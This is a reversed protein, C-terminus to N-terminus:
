LHGLLSPDQMCEAAVFELCECVGFYAVFCVHSNVDELIGKLLLDM